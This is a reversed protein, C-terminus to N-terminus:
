GPISSNVDEYHFNYFDNAYNAYLFIRNHKEQFLRANKKIHIPSPYFEFNRIYCFLFFLYFKTINSHNEQYLACRIAFIEFQLM